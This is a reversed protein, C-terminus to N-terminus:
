AADLRARLVAAADRAGTLAAETAQKIRLYGDWPDGNGLTYARTLLEDISLPLRRETRLTTLASRAFPENQHNTGTPSNLVRTPAEVSIAPPGALKPDSIAPPGALKLDTSNDQIPAMQIAPPGALKLTYTATKGRGSQAEIYGANHLHELRDRVFRRGLGTMGSLESQTPSAVADDGATVILALLVRLDGGTLDRARAMAGSTVFQKPFRMLGRHEAARDM